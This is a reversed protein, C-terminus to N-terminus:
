FLKKQQGVIKYEDGQERRVQYGKQEAVWAVFAPEFEPLLFNSLWFTYEDSKPNIKGELMLKKRLYPNGSVYAEFKKLENVSANEALKKGVDTRKTEFEEKFAEIKRRGEETDAEQQKEKKKFNSMVTVEADEKILKLFYAAPNKIEGINLKHHTYKAIELVKQEDYEKLTSIIQNEKLGLTRLLNFVTTPETMIQGDSGTDISLRNERPYIKFKISDIKRGKRIEKFTFTIDCHKDLDKQSPLLIRRKFDYYREYLDEVGMVKKLEELKFTRTGLNAYQKLLQYMQMAYVSSLPLVNRIDYSTFKEKLQLLYPVLRPHFVAEIYPLDKDYVIEHFLNVQRIKPDEFIEIVHKMLSKTIERARQYENKNKTGINEVFDRLYVRQKVFDPQDKDLQAVLVEFFRFQSLTLNNLRANILKNSKVVLNPNSKSM